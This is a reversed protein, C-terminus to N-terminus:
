DFDDFLTPEPAATMTRRLWWDGGGAILDLAERITKARGVLRWRGSGPRYLVAVATVAPPQQLLANAGADTLTALM